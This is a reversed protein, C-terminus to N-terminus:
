TSRAPKRRSSPSGCGSRAASGTAASSSSCTSGGARRGARPPRARPASRTRRPRRARPPAARAASLRERRREIAGAARARRARPRRGRGPLRRALPRRARRPPDDGPEDRRRRQPRLQRERDAREPHQTEFLARLVADRTGDSRAIADLVVEMAQAAYIASPELEEGALTASFTQAFRRGESPLQDAGAIGSLSLYVGRAAPGARKTLLSVPAFGDPALIAVRDGLRARLARVVAPGGRTWRAASCCREREPGSSAPRWVATTRRRPNWSARGAVPLALASAFREFQGAFLRGYEDDGDDLVYVPARELRKALLALAAAQHDDAPYVRLFNRRGTPYLSRPEGPRTGPGARTLGVYSSLPSVIALPGAARNLEPVAALACDSNLPGVVAVVDAARGYTRANAACKTRDPLRTAAVADDCSQYAVRWRGARFGHRRLVFAMADAMQQSSIRLGGQLPLDSVVLRDAPESGGYFPRECFSAPLPTVGAAAQAAPPADGAAPATAVWVAGAGM